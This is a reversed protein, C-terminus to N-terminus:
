KLSSKSWFNTYKPFTPVWGKAENKENLAIVVKEEKQQKRDLSFLVNLLNLSALCFIRKCAHM